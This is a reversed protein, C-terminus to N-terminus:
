EDENDNTLFTAPFAKSAKAGLQELKRARNILNGKGDSLKKKAEGFVKELKDIQEGISEMDKLFASFKDFMEGGQRAIELANQTQKEHKWVSSVTRLTALM